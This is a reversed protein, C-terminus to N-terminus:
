TTTSSFSAPRRSRSSREARSNQQMCLLSSRSASRRPRARRKGSSKRKTRQEICGILVDIDPLENCLEALAQDHATLFAPRELLDHPPYGCLALEPFVALDCNEEVAKQCADIIKGSNRAFDGIVPNIQVLAIKM